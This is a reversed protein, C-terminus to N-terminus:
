AGEGRGAAALRMAFDKMGNARAPWQADWCLARLKALEGNAIQLQAFNYNAAQNYRVSEDRAAALEARLKALECRPCPENELEVLEGYERASWSLKCIDCMRFIRM